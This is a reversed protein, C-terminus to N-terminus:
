RSEGQIEEVITRLGAVQEPTLSRELTPLADRLFVATEYTTELPAGWRDAGRVQITDDANVKVTLGHVDRDRDRPLPAPPLAPEPTAPV